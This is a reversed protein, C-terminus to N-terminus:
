REGIRRELIKYAQELTLKDSLLLDLPNNWGGNKSDRYSVKGPDAGVWAILVDEGTESLFLTVQSGSIRPVPRSSVVQFRIVHVPLPVNPTIEELREVASFVNRPNRLGRGALKAGTDIIVARTDDAV